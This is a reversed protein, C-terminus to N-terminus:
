RRASAARKEAEALKSRMMKLAEAHQASRALNTLERPDQTLDYLEEGDSWKGYRWRETRIAKGMYRGRMVVTYAVDKGAAKPDQLMPVFSRLTIKWCKM